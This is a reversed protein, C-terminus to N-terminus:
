SVPQPICACFCCDIFGAFGQGRLTQTRTTSLASLDDCEQLIVFQSIHYPLCSCVYSCSGLESLPPSRESSVQPSFLTESLPLLMHL